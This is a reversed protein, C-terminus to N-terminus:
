SSSVKKFQTSSQILSAPLCLPLAYWDSPTPSVSARPHHTPYQVYANTSYSPLVAGLDGLLHGSLFQEGLNSELLCTDGGDGGGVSLSPGRRQTPCHSTKSIVCWHVADAREQLGGLSSPTVPQGVKWIVFTEWSSLKGFDSVENAGLLLRLGGRSGWGWGLEGVHSNPIGATRVRRPSPKEPEPCLTDGATASPRFPLLRLGQKARPPIGGSGSDGDRPQGM